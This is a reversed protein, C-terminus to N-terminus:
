VAPLTCLSRLRCVTGTAGHQSCFCISAACCLVACCLVACCLVACHRCLGSHLVAVCGGQQVAAEDEQQSRAEQQQQVLEQMLQETLRGVREEKDGELPLSRDSMATNIEEDSMDMLMSYIEQRSLQPENGAAAAALNVSGEEAFAIDDAVEDEDMTAVLREALQQKTGYTAFGQQSCLKILQERTHRELLAAIM